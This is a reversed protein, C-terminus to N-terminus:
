GHAVRAACRGQVCAPALDDRCSNVQVCVISPRCTRKLFRRLVDEADKSVAWRAGGTRCPCCGIRDVLICDADAACRVIDLPVDVRRAHIREPELSCLAVAVLVVTLGCAAIAARRWSRRRATDPEPMM